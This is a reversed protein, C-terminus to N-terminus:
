QKPENAFLYGQAAAFAMAAVLRDPASWPSAPPADTKPKIIIAIHVRLLPSAAVQGRCALRSCWPPLGAAVACARPPAHLAGQVRGRRGCCPPATLSCSRRPKRAGRHVHTSISHPRRNQCPGGRRHRGALLPWPRPLERRVHRGSGGPRSDGSQELASGKGCSPSIGRGTCGKDYQGNPRPCGARPGPPGAAASTTRIIDSEGRKPLRSFGTKKTVGRPRPAPLRNRKCLKVSDGASRPKCTGARAPIIQVSAPLPRENPLARPNGRVM